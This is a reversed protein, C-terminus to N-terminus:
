ASDGLWWNSSGDQRQETKM